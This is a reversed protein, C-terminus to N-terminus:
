IAHLRSTNKWMNWMEVHLDLTKEGRKKCGTDEGKCLVATIVDRSMKQMIKLYTSTKISM